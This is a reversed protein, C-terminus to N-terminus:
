GASAPTDQMRRTEWARRNSVIDGDHPRLGWFTFSSFATLVGVTLYARHLAPVLVESPPHTQAGVLGAANVPWGRKNM